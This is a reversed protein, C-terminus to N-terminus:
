RGCLDNELPHTNSFGNANLVVRCYNIWPPSAGPPPPPLRRMHVVPHPHENSIKFSVGLPSRDARPGLKKQGRFAAM